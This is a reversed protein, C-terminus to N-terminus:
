KKELQKQIKKIATEISKEPEIVNYTGWFLPDSFGKAEDAIVVSPHLKQKTSKVFDESYHTTKTVALEVVSLYNTNFLRKKWNVKMALEIRGYSYYWKDGQQIYDVHYFAKTPYVNAGIPKKKLFMEAAKHKDTLNLEFVASKLAYSNSEIFLKGAYLPENNALRQKFSVVYFLKNNLYISKEFSFAYLRNRDESFILETNKILDLYICNFPGGMMKFALTDLRNYDTNKRAKILAIEDDEASLYSEKQIQVVAESLSVYSKGKKITERYFATQLQKNTSYNVEKRLLMANILDEANTNSVKIEPLMVSTAEMEIRYFQVDNQLLVVQTKYGLYSVNLKSNLVNRKVKISFYGESNTVTSNNIDLVVSAYSLVVGTNKDVVIGRYDICDDLVLGLVNACLATRATYIICLLTLLLVQLSKLKLKNM